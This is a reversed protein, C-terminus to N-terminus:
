LRPSFILLSLKDLLKDLINQYNKVSVSIISVVSRYECTDFKQM